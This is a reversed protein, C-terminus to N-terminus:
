NGDSNYSLTITKDPTVIEVVGEYPDIKKVKGLGRVMDGETVTITEGNASRLWARGPIIAQIEYNLKETSASIKAERNAVTSKNLKAELSVLRNSLTQMQSQLVKNEQSLSSIKKLYNNQLESLIQQNSNALEDIKSEIQNNLNNTSVPPAAVPIVAPLNAGTTTSAVSNPNNTVQVGNNSPQTAVQPPVSVPAASANVQTAPAPQYPVRPAVPAVQKPKETTQIELNPQDSSSIVHYTLYILVMLIGLGIGIKKKRSMSQLFGSSQEAPKKTSESDESSIEEYQIDDDVLHYEIDEEENKKYENKENPMVVGKKWFVAM